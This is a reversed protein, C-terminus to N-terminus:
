RQGGHQTNAGQMDLNRFEFGATLGGDVPLNTGTIGESEASLFYIVANAVQEPTLVAGLPQRDERRKLFAAPDPAAKMHALFMETSMPGPSVANVRIQRRGLDLAGGRVMQLVAGKTAGYAFLAEEGLYGSVSGVLVMSGKGLESMLPALAGMAKATGLVNVDLIRRWSESSVEEVTGQVLMAACHALGILRPKRLQILEVVRQWTADEDVGGRVHTYAADGRLNEAAEALDVGIVAVSSRVLKAALSAGLGNATGTVVVLDPITFNM